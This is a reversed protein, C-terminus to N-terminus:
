SELGGALSSSMRWQFFSPFNKGNTADLNLELTYEILQSTAFAHRRNEDFNFEICPCKANVFEYCSDKLFSSM